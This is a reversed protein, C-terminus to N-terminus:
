VRDARLELFGIVGDRNLWQYWIKSANQLQLPPGRGAILLLEASVSVVSCTLAASRHSVSIAMNISRSFRAKRDDSTQLHRM